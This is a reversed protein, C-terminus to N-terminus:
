KNKNKLKYKQLNYFTPPSPSVKGGIKYKNKLRTKNTNTNKFTIFPPLPHRPSEERPIEPESDVINLWVQPQGGASRGHM